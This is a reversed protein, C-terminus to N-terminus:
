MSFHVLMDSLIVSIFPFFDNKLNPQQHILLELSFISSSVANESLECQCNLLM